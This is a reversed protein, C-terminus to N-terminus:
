RIIRKIAFVKEENVHVSLQPLTGFVTLAPWSPDLTQFVRREVKLTISFRDLVHLSSTGRLHANKWNDRLRGVIV